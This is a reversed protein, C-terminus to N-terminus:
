GKLLVDIRTVQLTHTIKHCIGGVLDDQIPQGLVHNLSKGFEWMLTGEQTETTFNVLKKYPAYKNSKHTYVDTSFVSHIPVQGSDKGKLQTCEVCADLLANSFITRQKEDLYLPSITNISLFVYCDLLDFFVQEARKRFLESGDDTMQVYALVVYRDLLSAAWFVGAVLGAKKVLVEDTNKLHLYKGWPHKSPFLSRIPKLLDIM